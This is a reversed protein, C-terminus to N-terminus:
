CTEGLSGHFDKSLGSNERNVELFWININQWPAGGTCPIVSWILVLNVHKANNVSSQAFRFGYDTTRDERETLRVVSCIKSEHSPM